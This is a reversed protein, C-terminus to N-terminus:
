AWCRQGILDGIQHARLVAAEKKRTRAAIAVLPAALLGEGGTARDSDWVEVRWARGVLWGVAFALGSLGFGGPVLPADGFGAPLVMVLYNRGDPAQVRIPDDPFEPTDTAVRVDHGM